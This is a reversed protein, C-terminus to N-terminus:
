PISVARVVSNPSCPVRPGFLLVTISSPQWTLIANAKNAALISGSYRGLAYCTTASLTGINYCNIIQGVYGEYQGQCWDAIGSVHAPGTARGAFFSNKVIGGSILAGAIGGVSLDTTSGSATATLVSSSWCEDVLGKVVGAFSGVRYDASNSTISFTCGELGLRRVTGAANVTGFLGCNVNTTSVSLREIVHYGGDLTGSFAPVPTYSIGSMDIDAVIYFTIGSFNNSQGLQSFKQLGYCTSIQFEKSSPYDEYLMIDPIGEAAQVEAVGTSGFTCLSLLCALALVLSLLRRKM